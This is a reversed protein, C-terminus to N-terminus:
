TDDADDNALEDAQHMAVGGSTPRAVSALMGVCPVDLRRCPTHPTMRHDLPSCNNVPTSIIIIILLYYYYYYIIIIIFSILLLLLLVFYFTM